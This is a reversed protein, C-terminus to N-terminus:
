ADDSDFPAFVGFAFTDEFRRMTHARSRVLCFCGGGYDGACMLLALWYSGVSESGLERSSDSEAGIAAAGAAVGDAEEFRKMFELVKSSLKYHTLYRICAAYLDEDKRLYRLYYDSPFAMDKQRILGNELYQEMAAMWYFWVDFCTRLYEEQKKPAEHDGFIRLAKVDEQKSFDYECPDGSQDKERAKFMDGDWDVLDTAV